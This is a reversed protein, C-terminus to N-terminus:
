TTRGILQYTGWYKPMARWTQTRLMELQARRLAEAAHRLTMGRQRASTQTFTGVRTGPQVEKRLERYFIQFIVGTDDPTPWLSAIVGLAGAMLWARSMGILGAAPIRTGAASHCGSLVVLSDLVNVHVVDAPSFFDPQGNSDLSLVLLARDPSSEHHLFHTAFHIVAAGSEISAAANKRNAASGLLLKASSAGWANASAQLELRSSALRPLQLRGGVPESAMLSGWFSRSPSNVSSPSWRPDATNYVADGVGVFVGNWDGTAQSLLAQAGAVLQLSRREILYRVENGQGSEKGVLAAVPLELLAGDFALLWHRARLAESSLGGFLKEYMESGIRAQDSASGTRIAQRFMETLGALGEQSPLEKWDLQNQTLTWRIAVKPGLHYSILVSDAGLSARFLILPKSTAFNEAFAGSLPRVGAFSEMEALRVRLLRLRPEGENAVSIGRNFSQREMQRFEALTQWYEPNLRDRLLKGDSDNRSALSAKWEESALWAETIVSASNGGSRTWDMANRLMGDYISSLSAENSPRLVDSSLLDARTERISAISKLYEQHAELHQKRGALIKARLSHLLHRPIPRPSKDAMEQAANVLSFALTLNGRVFELEGLGLYTYVLAPDHNFRRIRFANLFYYEASNWDGTALYSTAFHNLVLALSVDDGAADAADIARTYHHRALTWSQHHTAILARILHLKSAYYPPKRVQRLRENGENAADEAAELNSTSLYLSALNFLIAGHEEAQNQHHEALRRGEIWYHLAEPYRYQFRHLAGLSNLFKLQGSINRTQLAQQYGTEYTKFASLVDGKERQAHANRAYERSTESGWPNAEVLLFGLASLIMLGAM